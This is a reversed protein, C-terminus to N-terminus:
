RINVLTVRRNLARGEENINSAIPQSEGFGKVSFKSSNIHYKESLERMVSIARRYSLDMNYKAEGRSDTHGQIQIKANSLKPSRLAQAIEFIQTHASGLIKDSDFEFNITLDIKGNSTDSLAKSIESSKILSARKINKKKFGKACKAVGSYIAGKKSNQSSENNYFKTGILITKDM